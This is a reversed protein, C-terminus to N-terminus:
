VFHLLFLLLLVWLFCRGGELQLSGPHLFALAACCRGPRIGSGFCCLMWRFLHWLWLLCAWGCGVWGRWGVQVGGVWAVGRM